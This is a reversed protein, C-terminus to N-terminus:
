KILQDLNIVSRLMQINNRYCSVDGKFISSSGAVFISAGYAKLLKANEFNINGDVEIIINEKNHKVLFEQLKRAKKIRSGLSTYNIPM